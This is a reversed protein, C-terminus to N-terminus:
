IKDFLNLQFTYHLLAENVIELKENEKERLTILRKTTM